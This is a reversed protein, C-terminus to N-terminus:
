FLQIEPSSRPHNNLAGDLVFHVLDEEEDFVVEYDEVGEPTLYAEHSGVSFCFPTEDRNTVAYRVTLCNEEVSFIARLDYAFPFGETNKQILFTAQADSASELAWEVRRVIGHKPLPYRKGQWDYCDERLGGAVPFLIPARSGWYAPDGHWM